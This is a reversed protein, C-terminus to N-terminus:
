SRDGRMRQLQQCNRRGRNTARDSSSWSWRLTSNPSPTELWIMRQSIGDQIDSGACSRSLEENARMGLVIAVALANQRQGSPGCSRRWGGRDQPASSRQRPLQGLERLTPRTSGSPTRSPRPATTTSSRRRTPAEVLSVTNFTGDGSNGFGDHLPPILGHAGADFQKLGDDTNAGANDHCFSCASQSARAWSCCAAPRLPPDFFSMGGLRVRGRTRALAHIGRGCAGGARDTPPLRHGAACCRARFHQTIPAWSSTASPAARPAGDGSWGVADRDPELHEPVANLSVAM